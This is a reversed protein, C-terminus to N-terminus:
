ERKSEGLGERDRVGRRSCSLECNRREEKADSPERWRVHPRGLRLLYVNNREPERAQCRSTHPQQTCLGYDGPGDLSISVVSIRVLSFFIVIIIFCYHLRARTESFTKGLAAFSDNELSYFLITKSFPSLIRSHQSFSGFRKISSRYVFVITKPSVTQIGLFRTFFFRYFNNYFSSITNIRSFRKSKLLETWDAHIVSRLWFSWFDTRVFLPFFQRYLFFQKRTCIIEIVKLRPKM